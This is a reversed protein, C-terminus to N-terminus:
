LRLKTQIKKIEDTLRKFTRRDPNRPISKIEEELFLKLLIEAYDPINAHIIPGYRSPDIIALEFITEASLLVPKIKLDSSM